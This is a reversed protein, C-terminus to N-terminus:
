LKSFIEDQLAKEYAEPNGEGIEEVIGLWKDYAVRYAEIAAEVGPTGREMEMETVRTFEGQQLTKLAALLDDSPKLLEIGDALGAELVTQDDHMYGYTQDAVLKASNDIFVQRQQETLGKWVSTNMDSIITSFAVGFKLDTVYKVMEKLNFSEMWSTPGAVCDVQGRQLAEYTEGAGVAVPTGGLQAFVNGVSSTARIKVGKLDELTVVPKTCMLAYPGGGGLALSIFNNKDAQELCEPCRLMAVENAAALGARPDSVAAMLGGIASLTPLDASTYIPVLTASDVVGARVNPLLEKSGGLSGGTYVEITIEGDTQEKIREVYPYYAYKMIPHTPTIYTVYTIEKAMAGGGTLALTAGLALVKAFTTNLKM